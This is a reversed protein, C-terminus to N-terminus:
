ITEMTKLQYVWNNAVFDMNYKLIENQLKIVKEKRYKENNLYYITTNAIGRIDGPKVKVAEKGLYDYAPLNYTIPLLGNDVAEMVSLAWGEEYSPFIFISAKKLIENKEEITIFGKLEVNQMPTYKQILKNLNKGIFNKGILILKSDPIKTSISIWAKLIDVIGKNYSIRGVFVCINERNDPPSCKYIGLSLLHEFCKDIHWGTFKAINCNDLFVPIEMLKAVVLAYVSIAWAPIVRLFGRRFPHWLPSPTIHYMTIAIRRAGLKRLIKVGNIDIPFPDVTIFYSNKLDLNSCIRNLEDKLLKRNYFFMSFPFKTVSRFNACFRKEGLFFFGLEDLNNTIAFVNEGKNKLYKSLREYFELGGGTGNSNRYGTLQIFIINM